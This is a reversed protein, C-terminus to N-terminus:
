LRASHFDNEHINIAWGFNKGYHYRHIRRRRRGCGCWFFTNSEKFETFHARRRMIINATTPMSWGFINYICSLTHPSLSLPALATAFHTCLTSSSSSSSSSPSSSSSWIIILLSCLLHSSSPFTFVICHNNNNTTHRKPNQNENLKKKKRIQNTASHYNLHTRACHVTQEAHITFSIYIFPQTHNPKKRPSSLPPKAGHTHTHACYLEM